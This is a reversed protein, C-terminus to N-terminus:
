SLLSWQQTAPLGTSSHSGLWGGFVTESGFSSRKPEESGESSSEAGNFWGAAVLAQWEMNEAPVFPCHLLFLGTYDVLVPPRHPLAVPLCLAAFWLGVSPVTSPEASAFGKGPDTWPCTWPMDATRCPGGWSLLALLLM